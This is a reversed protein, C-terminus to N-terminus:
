VRSRAAPGGQSQRMAVGGMPKACGGSVAQVRVEQVQRQHRTVIVQEPVILGNGEKAHAGEQAYREVRLEVVSPYPKDSQDALCIKADINMGTQFQSSLPDFSQAVLFGELNRDRPLPRGNSILDNLVAARELDLWGFAKYSLSGEPPEMLFINAGDCGPITIECHCITIGSKLAMLEICVALAFGKRDGACIVGEGSQDIRLLPSESSATKEVGIAVGGSKLRESNASHARQESKTLNWKTKVNGGKKSHIFKVQV